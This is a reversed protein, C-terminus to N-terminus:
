RGPSVRASRVSSASDVDHRRYDELAAELAATYREFTEALEAM